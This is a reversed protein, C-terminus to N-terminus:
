IEYHNNGNKKDWEQMPVLALSHSFFLVKGWKLDLIALNGDYIRINYGGVQDLGKINKEKGRVNQNGRGGLTKKNSTGDM